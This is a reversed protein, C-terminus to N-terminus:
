DFTQPSGSSTTVSDGGAVPPQNAAAIVTLGVTANASQTIGDSARYVFSDPGAYGATPTYSFSGNANLTLQGHSGGSILVATLADSDADTDNALVGPAPVTLSGNQAVNYSNAAA